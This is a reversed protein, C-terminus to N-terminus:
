KRRLLNSLLAALDAAKEVSSLLGKGLQLDPIPVSSSLVRTKRHILAKVHEEGIPKWGAQNVVWSESGRLSDTISLDKFSLGVFDDFSSLYDGVKVIRDVLFSFPVLEWIVELPNLLGFQNLRALSPDTVQVSAKIVVRYVGSTSIAHWYSWEKKHMNYVFPLQSSGRIFRFDYKLPNDIVQLCSDISGFMPIWGLRYALWNDAFTRRTSVNQPMSTALHHAAEGFRCRKIAVTAKVMRSLTSTLMLLSQKSEALDVALSAQADGWAAERFKGYARAYAASGLKSRFESTTSPSGLFLGRPLHKYGNLWECWIQFRNVANSRLKLQKTQPDRPSRQWDKLQCYRSGSLNGEYVYPMLLEKVTVEVHTSYAAGGLRM